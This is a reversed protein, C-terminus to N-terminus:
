RDRELAFLSTHAPRSSAGPPTTPVSRKPEEVERLYADVEEASMPASDLADTTERM